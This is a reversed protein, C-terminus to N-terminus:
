LSTRQFILCSNTGGFGFSNSLAYEISSKQATNAVHDVGQCAEDLYDLNITPPIQETQLSKICFIAEIGGTAGLCHGTMSKTSSLKIKSASSGFAERIAQIEITDGLPTSTGHANIYGVSEPAIDANELAQKMCQLAGSGKPHPATIHYADCTSGHGILLALIDAGRAQAKQYDELILIGAGEAIVFGDRNKDFPRSAQTPNEARKSLAKMNAFGSFSLNALPGESGGSIVVDQRGSAVEMFAQSLAHGASACASSVTFNVGKLNFTTGLIGSAMNPIIAPIFFPSVRRPGRNLFQFYNKEIYPLGGMGVGLIAGMREPPYERHEKLCAQKLAENTAHLAFNIFRDYRNQQKENILEKDFTFEKIQGGIGICPADEISSIGSQGGIIKEWIDEVTHGVSCIAGMGTIAVKNM